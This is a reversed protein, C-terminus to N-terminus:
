SFVSTAPRTKLWGTISYRTQTTREVEHPLTSDFCVFRNGLPQIAQLETDNKSYLNLKGGYSVDWTPNLYYVCSIKRTKTTHFQDIHKKYFAGPSYVAFHLEHEQLGLFLNQNLSKMLAAIQQLYRCVADNNPLEDLWYIHDKRISQNQQTQSKQGIKAPYFAEQQALQTALVYLEQYTSQDLFDDILHYGQTCLDDFLKVSEFVAMRKLFLLHM